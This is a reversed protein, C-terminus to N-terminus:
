SKYEAPSYIKREEGVLFVIFLIDQTLFTAQTRHDEPFDPTM